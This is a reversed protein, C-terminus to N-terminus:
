DEKIELSGLGYARSLGVHLGWGLTLKFMFTHSLANKIFPESAFIWARFIELLLM